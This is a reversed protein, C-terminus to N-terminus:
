ADYSVVARRTRTGRHPRTRGSRSVTQESRGCGEFYGRPPISRSLVDRGRPTTGRRRNHRARRRAYYAPVEEIPDGYALAGTVAFLVKEIVVLVAFAIAAAGVLWGRVFGSRVPTIATNKPSSM